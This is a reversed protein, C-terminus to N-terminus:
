HQHGCDASHCRDNCRGEKHLEETAAKHRYVLRCEQHGGQLYLTEQITSTAVTVHGMYLFPIELCTTRSGTPKPQKKFWANGELTLLAAGKAGSSATDIVTREKDTTSRRMYISVSLNGVALVRCTRMQELM